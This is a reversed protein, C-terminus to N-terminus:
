PVALEPGFVRFCGCEDEFQFLRAASPGDHQSPGYFTGYSTPSQYSSGLREVGTRLTSVDVTGAGDLANRLLLLFDCYSLAEASSIDDLIEECLQETPNTIESGVGDEGPNWGVGITGRLQEAPANGSQLSPANATNFAYLPRYGQSEAEPLFLFALTGAWDLFMVHDVGAARFRVIANQIQASVAGLDGGSNPFTVEVEEFNEVGHAALRSRVVEDMTRDFEARDFRLLGVTAGDYWDQSALGHVYARAGRQMSLRGMMFLHDPYKALSQSDYPSRDPAFLPVDHEALCAVLSGAGGGVFGSVVAFADNDEAFHTCAAQGQAAWSSSELNTGHFIGEVPRGAIGGTENIWELLRQGAAEADGFQTSEATAGVIAADLSEIFEFGLVIPEGSPAVEGGGTGGPSSAGGSGSGVGGEGTTTNQTPLPGEGAATTPTGDTSTAGDSPQADGAAVGPDTSAPSLMEDMVDAEDGAPTSGAQTGDDIAVAAAEDETAGGGRVVLSVGGIGLLLVIVTSLAVASAGHEQVLGALWNPVKM